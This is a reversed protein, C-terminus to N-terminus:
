KTPTPSTSDFYIKMPKMCAILVIALAAVFAIALYGDAYALTYAQLRVQGGLLLAARGQAEEAGTSGPFLMQALFQVRETTIWNGPDVHLGLMNSHFQERVSILRQMLATGAEGGFLRICHIFSAYTLLNIPNSLAGTDFANQVFSGVLATFSLALGFSIVIQSILFNSGSWASTLQANILCAIAVVTFGSAFVLRNDFRRMLRAAIFGSLILPIILWLLVRGTELPRYNQTIALVGPLLFAIALMVFRFSFLCACLLATNRNVLFIPNFMPNPSLWRRIVTVLLLFGATVLLGVIVGSHLWDLREGQDLAGYILGLALSAYLFGRWSLIPKPGPRPPPNPIALYICIMMVPTLFVSQWFIWHWSLHEVYWGELSTGISTAGVIDMSYIGIAVIVYRMPLARLAYSLTLPYFTGSALGSIVQLCLMTQLNPSFPLLMSCLIFITASYLLVRKPGLLGGLYVSFPGMFMLAMNYSTPIWSAEDIGFGLAGRLDPLGVSILRGNLTVIGAGLYVGLTGVYPNQALFGIVGAFSSRWIDLTSNLNSRQALVSM